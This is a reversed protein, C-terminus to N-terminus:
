ASLDQFRLWAAEAIQTTLQEIYYSGAAPDAVRDFYSEMQLLHQINRAIRRNFDDIGNTIANSQAISLSNIGGLVASMAQTTARIKNTNIDEGQTDVAIIAHITPLVSPTITVGYAELVNAWVIKLARLKAIEIFYSIGIHLQFQLCNAIDTVQLNLVTLLKLYNEAAFLTQALEEVVNESGKFFNSGDVTVVKFIPLNEKAWDILDKEQKVGYRENEFPNYSIGGRLLKVNKGNNSAYNVFNKLFPLPNKHKTKESFQVSVYDLEINNLLVALQKQTPYVDFIFHPANVGGMLIHLAQKNAKKFNKNEVRITEAIDWTNTTKESVIPNFHVEKFDDAHCFPNINLQTSITPLPPIQWNLEDIPRSKLDKEIRTLWQSKAIADFELFLNKSM